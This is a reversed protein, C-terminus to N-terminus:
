SRWILAARRVASQRIHGLASQFQSLYAKEMDPRSFRMKIDAGLVFYELDIYDIFLKKPASSSITVYKRIVPDSDRAEFIVKVFVDFSHIRYPEFCFVAKKVAGDEKLETSKLKCDSSHIKGKGFVGNKYSIIFEESGDMRRNIIRVTRLVKGSTSIERVTNENGIYIIEEDSSVFATNKNM